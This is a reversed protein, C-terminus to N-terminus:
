LVVHRPLVPSSRGNAETASAWASRACGSSRMTPSAGTPWRRAAASAANPRRAACPAPRARFDRRPRPSRHGRGGHHAFRPRCLASAARSRRVDAGACRLCRLGDFVRCWEDRTKTAFVAAFRARLAPWGARDNQDPLAADALGLRECCSRTSSPSSRASRSTGITAPRTPTTGRRAPTSCTRRRARREMAAGGAHGLVDDDLLSRGRGDGRRGGPGPGFAASRAARLRHRLGAAHRRRRLRRRPQAAAGARGGPAASRTCRAPCRSTTSTTDPARPALPGDQGWGTM